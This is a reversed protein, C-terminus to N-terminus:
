RGFDGVHLSDLCDKIGIVDHVRALDDDSLGEPEPSLSVTGNVNLNTDNHKAAVKTIRGLKQNYLILCSKEEKPTPEGHAVLVLVDITRLDVERQAFHDTNAAVIGLM